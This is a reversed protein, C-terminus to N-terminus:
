WGCDDDDWEDWQRGGMTYPGMGMGRRGMMGMDCMPCMGYGRMPVGSRFLQQQMTTEAELIQGNLSAIDRTLSQIRKEDPSQSMVLANLEYQKSMLQQRLAFIRQGDDRYIQEVQKQQGPTLQYPGWGNGQGWSGGMRGRRGMMGMGNRGGMMGMGMGGGYGMTGCMPCGAQVFRRHMATEAQLVQEDLKSIENILAQTKKEDPNQSMVLANLEYQKSALQQQLRLVNQGDERYIKQVTAQQEPTLQSPGAAGQARAVGISGVLLLGILTFHGIRINM